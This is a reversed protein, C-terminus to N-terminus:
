PGGLSPSCPPSQSYASPVLLARLVAREPDLVDASTCRAEGDVVGVINNPTRRLSGNARGGTHEVPRRSYGVRACGRGRRTFVSGSSRSCPGPVTRVAFSIRGM